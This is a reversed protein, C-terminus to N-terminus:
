DLLAEDFPFDISWWSSPPQHHHYHPLHHCSACRVVLQISTSPLFLGQWSGTSRCLRGVASCQAKHSLNKSLSGQTHASLGWELSACRPQTQDVNLHRTILSDLQIKSFIISVKNCSAAQHWPLEWSLFCFDHKGQKEWIIIQKVNQLFFDNTWM